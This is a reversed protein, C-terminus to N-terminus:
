NPSICFYELRGRCRLAHNKLACHDIFSERPEERIQGYNRFNANEQTDITYSWTKVGGDKDAGTKKINKENVSTEARGDFKEWLKGQTQEMRASATKQTSETRPKM